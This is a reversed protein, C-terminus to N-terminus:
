IITVLDEQVMGSMHPRVSRVMLELERNRALAHRRIELQVPQKSSGNLGHTGLVTSFEPQLSERAEHNSSSFTM